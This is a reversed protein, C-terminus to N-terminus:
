LGNVCGFTSIMIAIAILVLGKHGVLIQAAAAAIRNEPVLAMDHIPVIYLYVGAAGTYAITTIITGWLLSRPLNKQPNRIEEAAFTVTNWADYSFLAYSMAVAVAALFPGSPLPGPTTGVLPKFNEFSGKGSSFGVIILLGIAGLKLVTFLNQVFAG